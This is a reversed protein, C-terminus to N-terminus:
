RELRAIKTISPIIWKRVQKETIEGAGTINVQLHIDRTQVSPTGVTTMGPAAGVLGGGAFAPVPFQFNNLANLFPIGLQKVAEPKFVFEGPTLRALISDVLGGGAFKPLSAFYTAALERYKRRLEVLMAPTAEPKGIAEIAGEQARRVSVSDPVEMQTYNIKQKATRGESKLDSEIQYKNAQSKLLTRKETAIQSHLAVLQKNYQMKLKEVTELMGMEEDGAPPGGRSAGLDDCVSLPWAVWCPPKGAGKLRTIEDVILEGSRFKSHHARDAATRAKHGMRASNGIQYIALNKQDEVYATFASEIGSTNFGSKSLIPKALSFDEKIRRVQDEVDRAPENFGLSYPRETATLKSTQSVLVGVEQLFTRIKKLDDLYGVLEEKRQILDARKEELGSVVGEVDGAEPLKRGSLRHKIDGPTIGSPALLSIIEKIVQQDEVRVGKLNTKFEGVLNKLVSPLILKYESPDLSEWGSEASKKREKFDAHSEGDGRKLESPNGEQSLLKSTVNLTSIVKSLDAIVKNIQSLDGLTGGGTSGRSKWPSVFGGLAFKAPAAMSNYAAFISDGYKRVANKNIIFEGAELLAHIKDGGGFGPLKGRSGVGGGAQMAEVHKTTITITKDRLQDISTVLDDVASQGFVDAGADVEKSDLAEISTALDKVEEENEVNAKIDVEIPEDGLEKITGGLSKVEESLTDIEPQFQIEIEKAAEERASLIDLELQGLRKMSDDLNDKAQIYLEILGFESVTGKLKSIADDVAQTNVTIGIEILDGTAKSLSALEQKITGIHTLLQSTASQQGKLRDKMVSQAAGAAQEMGEEAKGILTIATLITQKESVVVDNGRKIEGALGSATNKVENFLRKAEEYQSPDLARAEALKQNLEYVKDAYAVEDSYLKRKLDRIKDDASKHFGAIDEQIGKVADRFSEEATLSKDLEAKLISTAREFAAKKRAVIDKTIELVKAAHQEESILQTALAADVFQVQREGYVGWANLATELTERVIDIRIGAIENEIETVLQVRREESIATDREVEQQVEKLKDILPGSDVKSFAGVTNEVISEGLTDLNDKATDIINSIENRLSTVQKVAANWEARVEALIKKYEQTVKAVAKEQAQVKATIKDQLEVQARSLSSGHAIADTVETHLKLERQLSAELEGREKSVDFGVKAKLDLWMSKFGFTMQAWFVQFEAIISNRWNKVAVGFFTLDGVWKRFTESFTLGVIFAVFAAIAINFGGIVLSGWKLVAILGIVVKGITAFLPVLAFMALKAVGLFSIFLALGAVVKVLINTFVKHEGAWETVTTVSSTVKRLLEEVTPLLQNGIYKVAASMASKMERFAGVVNRGMIKSIEKARGEAEKNLKVYKALAASGMGLLAAMGPGARQGFMAMAEAADLNAKELQEVISVFGVFDGSVSRLQLGMGGIRNNLDTVLKAEEKTPNFLRFLMGRLATGAMTGKLGANHLAGITATLDEFDAGLGAAVPAVYAMAHGLEQLTSNTNTFTQVLVDAVRELESVDLMFGTMINTIIDASEALDLSGAHAVELVTGVANYVEEVDLGAMALLKMGRAAQIGTFETTRGLEGARDSLRALQKETAGSIAQVESMARQFQAAKTVPFILAGLGAVVGGIAGVVGQLSSRLGGAKSKLKEISATFVKNKVIAKGLSTTYSRVRNVVRSISKQIAVMTKPVKTVELKKTAKACKEFGAISSQVYKGTTEVADGLQTVSSTSAASAAGVKKTASEVNGFNKATKALVGKTEDVVRLVIEVIRQITTKTTAM